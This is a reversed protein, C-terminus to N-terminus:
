GNRCSGGEGGSLPSSPDALLTAPGPGRSRAGWSHDETSTSRDVSTGKM